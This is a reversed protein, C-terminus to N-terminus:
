DPLQDLEDQLIAILPELTSLTFDFQIGAADFLQPLPRTGGLALAQHFNALAAQPNNRYKKGYNCHGM